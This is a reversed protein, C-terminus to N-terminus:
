PSVSFDYLQGEHYLGYEGPPLETMPRVHWVGTPEEHADFPVIWDPDPKALHKTSFSFKGKLLSGIKLSRDNDNKEADLKAIFYYEQPAVDSPFNVTPRRDKTHTPAAAGPFIMFTLGFGAFGSEHMEGTRMHLPFVGDSASLTVEAAIARGPPMGPAAAAAPASMGKERASRDLMATIVKGSVGGKKLNLLDNTELAFAVRSAQNIKAIIVDDSLGLKSLSLVDANSLAAEDAVAAAAMLVILLFSVVRRM